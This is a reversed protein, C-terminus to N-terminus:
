NLVCTLARPGNLPATVRDQLAGAVPTVQAKAGEAVTFGVVPLGTFTVTVTFLVLAVGAPCYASVNDAFEAPAGAAFVCFTFRPTTSKESPEAEGDLTVTTGPDFEAVVICTDASPGNAPVTVREQLVGTLPTLQLKKGEAPTLGVAAVGTDTLTVTFAVEVVVGPCYLRTTEALLVPAGDAFICVIASAIPSKATVAVVALAVTFAPLVAEYVNDSVGTFPGNELATENVHEPSGACLLQENLGDLKVGPVFPPVTVSDMAVVAGASADFCVWFVPSSKAISRGM